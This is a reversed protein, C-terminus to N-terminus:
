PNQAAIAAAALSGSEIASEFCGGSFRTLTWDGALYLNGFQAPGPPLRYQVSGAPTQVYREFGERNARCYRSMETGPKMPGGPVAVSPWLGAISADLWAQADQCPDAPPADEPMCGCFYEIAQPAGAAPWDELPLQQSMDAWSDFREAYASVITADSTWGLKDLGPALWLQFAETAVSISQAVMSSWRANAAALQPAVAEIVDPPVALVVMDFDTGLLLEVQGASTTDSSSEFNVGDARLRAGNVLQEWLPQDPWCDLGKVVVFPQYSGGVVEAQQDIQIAGIKSKDASLAIGTVRHFFDIKVGRAALVQYLPTFLADGTGANMKWFPAHRYGLALDMVFRFTVGAAMSGNALTTADGNRYAFTLDYLARIPASDLAAQTAGHGGLWDRFDQANLTDYASPGRGCLDFLWGLGVSMALDALILVHTVLVPLSAATAASTARDSRDPCGALQARVREAAEQLEVRTADIGATPGDQLVPSSALRRLLALAPGYNLQAALAPDLNEDLLAQVSEAMVGVLAETAAPSVPDGPLGAREPLTFTWPAWLPPTVGTAQEEAAAKWQPTVADTWAKFPSSARPTWEAYCARITQFATQYCGMLIHLGHEEIRGHVAMNRGSACKGGLRWGLTHVTVEYRARLAPTASLWFAASIGGPGGGLVAVKIRAGSATDQAASQQM